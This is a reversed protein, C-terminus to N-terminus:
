QITIMALMRIARPSASANRAHHVGGSVGRDAELATDHDSM